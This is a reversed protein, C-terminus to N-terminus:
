QEQSYLFASSFDFLFHLPICFLLSDTASFLLGFLMGLLATKFIGKIGQYFHAFGFSFGVIVSTLIPGLPFISQLLYFCFGRFVTEECVGAALSTLAFWRKERSTRPILSDVVKEYQGGSQFNQQLNEATSKRYSPSALFALIQYLFLATLLGCVILVARYLIPHAGSFVPPRFGIDLLTIPSIWVIIFVFLLSCLNWGLSFRYRHIRQAEPIPFNDLKKIACYGSFATCFLYLIALMLLIFNM